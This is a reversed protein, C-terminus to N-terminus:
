STLASPPYKMLIFPSPLSNLNTYLNFNRCLQYFFLFILCQPLNKPSIINKKPSVLKWTMNAYINKKKQKIEVM